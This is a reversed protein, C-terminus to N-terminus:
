WRELFERLETEFAKRAVDRMARSTHGDRAYAAQVNLLNELAPIIDGCEILAPVKRRSVAGLGLVAGGMFQPQVQPPTAPPTQAANGMYGYGATNGAHDDRYDM